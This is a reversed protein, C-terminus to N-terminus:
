HAVSWIHLSMATATFSFEGTIINDVRYDKYRLLIASASALIGQTAKAGLLPTPM